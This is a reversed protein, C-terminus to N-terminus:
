QEQPKSTFTDTDTQYHLAIHHGCKCRFINDTSKPDANTKGSWYNGCASCAVCYHHSNSASLDIQSGCNRCICKEAEKATDAYIFRSGCEKCFVFYLKKKLPKGNEASRKKNNLELVSRLADEAIEVFNTNIITGTSYRIRDVDISTIRGFDFRTYLPLGLHESQIVVQGSYQDHGRLTETGPVVMITGSNNCAANHSIVIAPHKGYLERTTTKPFNAWVVDWKRYSPFKM